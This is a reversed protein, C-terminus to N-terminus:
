RRFPRRPRTAAARRTKLVDAPTTAVAAIAGSLAGVAITQWANPERGLASQAASKLWEYAVVPRPLPPHARFPARTHVPRRDVSGFLCGERGRTESGLVYFPVERALTATTGTFLARVGGGRTVAAFAQWANAHQGTQLRQKLVENPIRLGTGLLTGFGSAVSPLPSPPRLVVPPDATRVVSLVFSATQKRAVRGQLLADSCGTLQALPALAVRAWEYSATRVGHSAAAGLVAPVIGAYLGRAGLAPIMRGLEGLSPAAGVSAQVRTKLTDLPDSGPAALLLRAPTLASTSTREEEIAGGEVWAGVCADGGHQHREGARRRARGQAPCARNRGPGCGPRAGARVHRGRVQPGGCLWVATVSPSHVVPLSALCLACGAQTDCWLVSPDSARLSDPPLLLAFNRFQSYSIVGSPDGPRPGAARLYAVMAAANGETAPLGLRKLSATIAPVTLNGRRDLRLANFAGAYSPLVCRPTLVTGLRQRAAAAM